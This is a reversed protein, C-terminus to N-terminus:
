GRRAVILQSVGFEKLIPTRELVGAVCRLVPRALRIVAPQSGSMNEFTQWLYGTSEIRFGASTLLDRLESHWYNRAWYHFLRRGVSLPIYPILPVYPPLMRGSSKLVVGHTEFPFWRNPSFVVLLGGPRLVRRIETLAKQEDPVHELVENLLAVDFDTDPFPVAELNGEHVRDKLTEHRHAQRVKDSSYEVGFADIGYRDALALVYDGAGCGCDLLRTKGPALFPLLVHLRKDLNLPAATDSGAIAIPGYGPM